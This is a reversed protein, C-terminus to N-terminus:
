RTESCPILLAQMHKHRVAEEARLASEEAQWGEAYSSVQKPLCTISQM